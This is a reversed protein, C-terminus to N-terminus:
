KKDFRMMCVSKKSQPTKCSINEFLSLEYGMYEFASVVVEPSQQLIWNLRKKSGDRNQLDFDKDYKYLSMEKRAQDAGMHGTTEFFVTSPERSIIDEILHFPSNLKYMLGACIIVDFHKDSVFNEYGVRHLKVLDSFREVNELQPERIFAHEEIDINVPEIADISKPSHQALMEWWHGIFSAYELVTKDKIDVLLKSIIDFYADEKKWKVSCGFSPNPDWNIQKGALTLDIAHRLSSGSPMLDNSTHSPDLEGHYVIVGDKDMLYFEPTCVAGYDKAISQDEDFIYECELDYKEVFEPMFEPADQPNSDETDPSADNSNVAVINVIDKYDRVLSSIAAMRFLVYPCHNCIIMLLNVEGEKMAGVLRPREGIMNESVKLVM